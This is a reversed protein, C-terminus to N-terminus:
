KLETIYINRFRFQGGGPVESQLSIYSEKPGEVGDAKWAPKGNIELEAQTGRVTLKFHNWEGRKILGTSKAGKLDAVNGEDDERLNAQYRPPWPRNAPVGDYRFYIGSDWKDDKLAKWEYEFVYDKYKKKTQVLGNGAKILVTGEDVVAECGLVDWAALNKGDFLAVRRGPKPAKAADAALGQSALVCCIAVYSCVLISKMINALATM